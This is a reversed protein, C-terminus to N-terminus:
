CKRSIKKKQNRSQTKEVIGLVNENENQHKIDKINTRDDDM